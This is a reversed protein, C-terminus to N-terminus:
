THIRLRIKNLVDKCIGYQKLAYVFWSDNLEKRQVSSGNSDISVITDFIQYRSLDLGTRNFSRNDKRNNGSSKVPEFSIADFHVFKFLGEEPENYFHICSTELVEKRYIFEKKDLSDMLQNYIETTLTRTKWKGNIGFRLLFKATM